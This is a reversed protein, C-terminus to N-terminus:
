PGGSWMEIMPPKSPVAAMMKIIVPPMLDIWAVVVAPFRAHSARARTEARPIKPQTWNIRPFDARTSKARASARHRAPRRPM